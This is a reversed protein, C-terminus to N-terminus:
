SLQYEYYKGAKYDFLSVNNGNCKVEIGSATKYDYVDIINESKLKLDIATSVGYDHFSPFSGSIECEREHDYVSIHHGDTSYDLNYYTGRTYDFIGTYGMKSLYMGCLFAITKRREDTM